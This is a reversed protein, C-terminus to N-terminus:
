ISNTLVKLRNTFLFDILAGPWRSNGIRWYEPSWSYIVRVCSTLGSIATFRACLHSLFCDVFTFAKENRGGKNTGELAVSNQIFQMEPLRTRRRGICSWIAM